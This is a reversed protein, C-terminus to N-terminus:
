SYANRNKKKVFLHQRWYTYIYRFLKLNPRVTLQKFSDKLLDVALYAFSTLLANKMAFFSIFIYSLLMDM